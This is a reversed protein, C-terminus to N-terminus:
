TASRHCLRCTRQVWVFQNFAEETDGRGANERALSLAVQFSKHLSVQESPRASEAELAIVPTAEALRTLASRLAEADDRLLQRTVDLAAAETKEADPHYPPAPEAEPEAAGAVLLCAAAVFVLSTKHM